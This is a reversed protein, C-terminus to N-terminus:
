RGDASHMMHVLWTVCISSDHWLYLHTIDSLHISVVWEHTHCSENMLTGHSMWLHAMVWEYKHWSENMYVLSTVHIFTMDCLHILWPVFIISDHWVSQHARSMWTHSMVWEYAHWSKNMHADHWVYSLTRDCLHNLWTVSIFSDHWLSSHPMDCLYILWTVCFTSDHWVSSHTTDCLHILWTVCLDWRTLASHGFLVLPTHNPSLAVCDVTVCLRQTQDSSIEVLCLSKLIAVLCLSETDCDSDRVSIEDQCVYLHIM